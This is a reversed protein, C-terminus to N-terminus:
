QQVSKTATDIRDYEDTITLIDQNNIVDIDILFLRGGHQFKYCM